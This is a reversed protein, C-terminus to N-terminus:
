WILIYNTEREGTIDPIRSHPFDLNVLDTNCTIYGHKSKKLVENIYVDNDKIESLAYNSIVLDYKKGTPETFCDASCYKEQWKTVEPLDIIDYSEVDFYDTITRCQGGYGGGIEVIDFGHLSGFNTILNSLVGIYQMTSTSYLKNGFLHKIPSGYFDNTFNFNLLKEPIVKFYEDAISKPCHEFIPYLRADSKFTNINNCADKCAQLYNELTKGKVIWNLM